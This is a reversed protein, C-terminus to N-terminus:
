GQNDYERAIEATTKEIGPYITSSKINMRHLQALIERKRRVVIRRVNLSSHGTEPLIADRGFLLFAGSQSSIRANSNRAKVFVIRGLDKPDILPKFYPKEAGIFHLLRRCEDTKNFDEPPLGTKMREKYEDPLMALNAICSVTDSDYFKIDAKRTSLIIVEGDIEAGDEDFKAGSCCFYLGVLPNSTVDLLRTPLGFHQMRVLKDIMYLDSAFDGPRESLLERVMRDEDRLYRPGGTANKRFLSPELRYSKDSHGRYFIQDGAMATEDLVIALYQELTEVIDVNEPPTMGTMVGSADVQDADAREPLDLGLEALADGLDGSKIAWHTRTLEWRGLTLAKEFARRDPIAVRGFDVDIQFDFGITGDAVRLSAIRGVRMTVYDPHDGESDGKLESMFLTPLDELLALTESSVPQLLGAIEPDTYELYRSLSFEDQHWEGVPQDWDTDDYAMLLNFM